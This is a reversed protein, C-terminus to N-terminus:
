KETLKTTDKLIMSNLKENRKQYEDFSFYVTDDSSDIVYVGTVYDHFSQGDRRKMMMTFSVLIPVGFAASGLVFEVFFLILSRAWFQGASPNVARANILSLKFVKKGLTQWGRKFFLPILCYFIFLSLLSLLYILLFASWFVLRSADIYEPRQTGILPIAHNDIAEEYFSVLAEYGVMPELSTSGESGAVYHWYPGKNKGREIAGDGVKLSLYKQEGTGDAFFDPNGYFETLSREYDADLAKYESEEHSESDDFAWATTVSVISSGSKLYLSSALEIEGMTDQAALYSPSKELIANGGASLCTALVAACVFDFLFAFLRKVWSAKKYELEIPKSEAPAAETQRTTETEM